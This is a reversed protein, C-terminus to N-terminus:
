QSLLYMSCPTPPHPGTHLFLVFSGGNDLSVSVSRCACGPNSGHGVSQTGVLTSRRLRVQSFCVLGLLKQERLPIWSLFWYNKQSLFKAKRQWTRASEHCSKSLCNERYVNTNLNEQCKDSFNSIYKIGYSKGLSFEFLLINGLIVKVHPFTITTDTLKQYLM